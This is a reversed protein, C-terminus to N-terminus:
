GWCIYERKIWRTLMRDGRTPFESCWIRLEVSQNVKSFEESGLCYFLVFDKNGEINHGEKSGVLRAMWTARGLQVDVDGSYDWNYHVEKVGSSITDRSSSQKFAM